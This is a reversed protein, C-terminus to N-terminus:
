KKDCNWKAYYVPDGNEGQRKGMEGKAVKDRAWGAAIIGVVLGVWLKNM